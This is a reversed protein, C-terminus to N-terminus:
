ASLQGPILDARKSLPEEYPTSKVLAVISGSRHDNVGRVEAQQMGSCFREFSRVSNRIPAERLHPFVFLCFRNRIESKKAAWYCLLVNYYTADVLQNEAMDAIAEVETGGTHLGLM